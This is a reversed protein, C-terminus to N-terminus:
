VLVYVQVDLVDFDGDDARSGQQQAGEKEEGRKDTDTPQKEGTTADGSSSSGTTSDDGDRHLPHNRFAKSKASSGRALDAMLMLGFGGGVEAPGVGLFAETVVLQGETFGKNRFRRRSKGSGGGGGGDSAADIAVGGGGGHGDLSSCPPLQFLFADRGGFYTNKQGGLAADGWSADLTVVGLRRSSRLAAAAEAAEVKKGGERGGGLGKKELSAAEVVLVSPLNSRGSHDSSAAQCRHLLTPLHYGDHSAAFALSLRRHRLAKPLWRALAARDAAPSLLLRRRKSAAEAARDEDEGEEGAEDAMDDSPAGRLAETAADFL